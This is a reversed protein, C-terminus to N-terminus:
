VKQSKAMAMAMAMYDYNRSAGTMKILKGYVINQVSLM